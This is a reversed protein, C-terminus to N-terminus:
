DDEPVSRNRGLRKAEYLAQDARFILKHANDGQRYTSVGISLSLKGMTEGTETNKLSRKSISERVTEAVTLANDLTTNPLIAAFEDGGWRAVVDGGKLNSVFNSAVLRLVQDGVTHGLTDNVNKFHDIDALLVSVKGNFDTLHSLIDKLSAEFRRRNGIGTIPDLMAAKKSQDLQRTLDTLESSYKAIKSEFSRGHDVVEAIQKRINSLLDRIADGEAGAPASNPDNIFQANDEAINDIAAVISELGRTIRGASNHLDAISNGFDSVQNVPAPRKADPPKM